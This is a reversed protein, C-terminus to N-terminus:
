LTLNPSLRDFCMEHPNSVSTLYMLHYAFLLKACQCLPRCVVHCADCNLTSEPRRLIAAAPSQLGSVLDNYGHIEDMLDSITTVKRWVHPVKQWYQSDHRGTTYLKRRLRSNAPDILSVMSCYVLNRACTRESNLDNGRCLM